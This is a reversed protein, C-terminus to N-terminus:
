ALWRALLGDRSFSVRVGYGFQGRPAAVLWQAALTGDELVTMSPFDAWNVLLDDGEHVLVPEGWQGGDFRAALLRSPGGDPEEM